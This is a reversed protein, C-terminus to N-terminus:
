MSWPATPLCFPLNVSPLAFPPQGLWFLDAQWNPVPQNLKSTADTGLLGGYAAGSDLSYSLSRPSSGAGIM